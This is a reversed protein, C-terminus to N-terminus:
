YFLCTISCFYLVAIRGNLFEEWHYSAVFFPWRLSQSLISSDTKNFIEFYLSQESKDRILLQCWERAANSETAVGNNRYERALLCFISYKGDEM